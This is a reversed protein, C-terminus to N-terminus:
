VMSTQLTEFSLLLPTRSHMVVKLEYQIDELRVNTRVRFRRLVHVAVTKMMQMAYAKGICSRPGGSFPLFACHHRKHDPDRQLEPCFREPVFKHPEPFTDPNWGMAHLTVMVRSGIPLTGESLKIDKTVKRLICPFVGHIRMTEMLAQGLYTMRRLDDQTVERDSDGLVEQIEAHVKDQIEPHNALTFLLFSIAAVVTDTAGVIMTTVEDFWERKCGGNAVQVVAVDVMNKPAYGESENEVKVVGDKTRDQVAEDWHENFVRVCAALKENAEKMERRYLVNFIWDIHLWVKFLRYTFMRGVNNLLHFIDEKAEKTLPKRAVVTSMVADVAANFIGKRPDVEGPTQGLRRVLEEGVANFEPLFRDVNSPHLVPNLLRRQKKWQHVPGTLLGNGLYPKLFDYIDDKELTNSSNLVTQVDNPDTAVFVPVPGVWLCFLGKFQTTFKVINNTVSTIDGLFYLANGILPLAPPSRLKNAASLIHRHRWRFQLYLVVLLLPLLGLLVPLVLM